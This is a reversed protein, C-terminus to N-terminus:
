PFSSPHYHFKVRQRSILLKSSLGNKELSTGIAAGLGYRVKEEVANRLFLFPPFNFAAGASCFSFQHLFGRRKDM